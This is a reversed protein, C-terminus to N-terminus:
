KNNLLRDLVEGFQAATSVPQDGGGAGQTLDPRLPAAQAPKLHKLLKDAAAALEEKSNGKLFEVLDAPVRKELAVALRDRESTLTTKETELATKAADWAEKDAAYQSELEATAKAVADQVAQELTAEPPTEVPAENTTENTTDTTEM